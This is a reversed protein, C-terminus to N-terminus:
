QENEFNNIIVVAESITMQKNHCEILFIMTQKKIALKLERIQNTLIKQIREETLESRPLDLIKRATQQVM